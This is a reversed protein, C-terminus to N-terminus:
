YKKRAYALDIFFSFHRLMRFVGIYGRKTHLFNGVTSSSDQSSTLVDCADDSALSHVVENIIKCSKFFCKCYVEYFIVVCRTHTDTAFYM